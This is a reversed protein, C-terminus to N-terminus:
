VAWSRGSRPKVQVKQRIQSYAAHALMLAAYADVKKPSERSEKSFSVGIANERRRANLLHRRLAINLMRLPNDPNRDGFKLKGDIIDGMLAENAKTVRVMAGRMDWAVANGASAKVELQEGYTAGWDSVYSEWMKVDSFFAAVRYNSFAVHVASNVAEYDVIWHGDKGLDRPKEQLHLLQVFGDQVRIAVLATSDDTRGGDFGLVIRDGYRLRAGNVVLADYDGPEYLADQDAVIQNLWMRRQRAPGIATNGLIDDIITEVSLWTADGRIKPLLAELCELTLDARPPAEITDYLFGRDPARGEIVDEYANRMREAVSDEGPLFANTIALHRSRGHAGKTNNGSITQYMEIGSNGSVWHHTENMLVFTPRGGEVTRPNSTIAEIRRAGGWAHIHEKLVELKYTTKLRDTIIAPFVTMTNKTQERSVASIQIWANPEDRVLPSGDEAWGDFRCPGVLEVLSIAALLPDKGWGKMRQLVGRRYLWQGNRDIAYWWLVFRAQERTFTWPQTPDQPNALYETCWGIVDWGLTYEPLVFRGDEGREWTPGYTEPELSTYDIDSDSSTEHIEDTVDETGM